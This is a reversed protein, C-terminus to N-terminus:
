DTKAEYHAKVAEEFTLPTIQSDKREGPVMGKFGPKTQSGTDFLFKTNKDEALKRIEDNLGKILGGDDLEAKELFVKLLPKVTEPNRAKATTLANNLATDFRLTKLENAHAEDSAKNAAQLDAIQKRLAEADDASGKLTQLQKDRETLAEKAQKLEANVDNFRNKTVFNGDLSEMVKKAQEETLGMAILQELTM